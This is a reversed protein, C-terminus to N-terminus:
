AGHQARHQCCPAQKPNQMERERQGQELEHEIEFIFMFSFSHDLFNKKLHCSGLGESVSDKPILDKACRHKTLEM